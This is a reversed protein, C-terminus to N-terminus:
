RRAFTSKTRAKFSELQEPTVNYGRSMPVRPPHLEAYPTWVIDYGAERLRLCLDVDNYQIPLDTENFGGIQDFYERKVAMCAATVASFNQCLFMVPLTNCEGWASHGLFTIRRSAEVLASLLAATSCPRTPIGCAPCGSGRCQAPDVQCVMETMWSRRAPNRHRQEPFLLIEGTSQRVADNNIRSYSFKGPVDVVYNRPQEAFQRLWAKSVEEQSDNNIIITDYNDYKTIRKLTECALKPSILKTGCRSDPRFRSPGSCSGRYVVRTCTSIKSVNRWMAEVGQRELHEQM